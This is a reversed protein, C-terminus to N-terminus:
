RMGGFSNENSYSPSPAYGGGSSSSPGSTPGGGTYGSSSSSPGSTPGGGTYGGGGGSSYGGSGTPGGGSYTGGSTGGYGFGGSDGRGGLSSDKSGYSNGYDYGGGGGGGTRGGLGSDKSGSYVDRGGGGGATSGLGGGGFRGGGEGPSNLGRGGDGWGIDAGRENQRGGMGFGGSIMGTMATGIGEAFGRAARGAMDAVVEGWNKDQAPLGGVPTGGFAYAGPNIANQVTSSQYVNPALNRGVTPDFSPNSFAQDKNSYASLQNFGAIEKRSDFADDKAAYRGENDPMGHTYFGAAIRDNYTQEPRGQPTLEPGGSSFGRGPGVVNGYDSMADINSNPNNFASDKNAGEYATPAFEKNNPTRISEWSRALSNQEAIQQHTRATDYMQKENARAQEMASDYGLAVSQHNALAQRVDSFDLDNTFPVNKETPAFQAFLDKTQNPNIAKAGGSLLAGIGKQVLGGTIGKQAGGMLIDNGALVANVADVTAKTKMDNSKAVARGTGTKPDYQYAINENSPIHIGWGDPLVNSIVIDTKGQTSLIGNKGTIMGEAAMAINGKGSTIKDFDVNTRDIFGTSSKTTGSPATIANNGLGTIDQRSVNSSSTKNGQPSQKGIDGSLTRSSLPDMAFNAATQREMERAVAFEDGTTPNRGIQSANNSGTISGGLTRNNTLDPARNSFGGSTNYSSIEAPTDFASDKSYGYVQLGDLPPQGRTGGPIQGGSFSTNVGVDPLVGGLREWM